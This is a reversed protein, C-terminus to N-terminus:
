NTSPSDIAMRRRFFFSLLVTIATVIGGMGLNITLYILLINDIVFGFGALLCIVGNLFFLFRITKGLKGEIFVPAVFLSSLGLFLTWGLMNIATIAADPRSQVFQEIGELHGKSLNLRVTTIQVFYSMGALTAFITSFILAARTLPKQEAPAFDHISSMILIYLPTFLLMATQAVFKFSQNFVQTSAAYDSLNTWTFPPNVIAVAVFCVTFVLFLIAGGLSSWFGIKVSLPNM